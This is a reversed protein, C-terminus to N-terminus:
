EIKIHVKKLLNEWREVDSAVMARFQEPTNPSSDMGNDALFAKMGPEVLVAQIERNLRAVLAPPTRPPAFIAFWIGGDYDTVGFESVSPLEPWIASRRASTIALAKMKGAAVHPRATITTLFTLQVENTIVALASPGGGKYPVHTIDIGAKVKFAEAILHTSSGLGSSSYNLKGPNKRAYDLMAPLTEFGSQPSAIIALGGSALMIVPEVDRRPDFTSKRMLTDTVIGGGHLLLTLGDPASRMVFDTGIAGNGGAKSEVFLPQGLRPQLRTALQRALAETGGGPAYPSVIRIPKGGEIPQARVQATGGTLALAAMGLLTKRRAIM